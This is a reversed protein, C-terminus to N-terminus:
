SLCVTHRQSTSGAKQPITLAAKMSTLHSVTPELMYVDTHQIMSRHMCSQMCIMPWRAFSFTTSVV